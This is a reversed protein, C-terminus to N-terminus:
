RLTSLSELFHKYEGAPDHDEGDHLMAAFVIRLSEGKNVTVESKAGQKMAERGFPNAVFVGYDRNHWWSERFNKERSMLQIGGSKPGIGSYDCWKAPQGWTAKATQKGSSCRIVGGNKETFPTAVRAGLGMEEQDGFVLPGQDAHFTADWVLLWGSPRHMLTFANTLSGLVQGSGTKLRCENSFTLRGDAIQSESVFRVHEMAAKNRWFDHGNIDGFGLWIGPHMTDHDLPDEGKVPPHNRTVQLGDALRANAFYPRLIKDDRFVFDVIRKGDLSIRLRDNQQDVGFGSSSAESGSAAAPPNAGDAVLPTQLSMLFTTLDAVQQPTLHDSTDPMASVPSSRREEISGKPIDVREGNSQGLSLSLGSEELLVGSYVNGEDTIVNVQKFGETIVASPEVISEVIHRVNARLGISSLNPGFGNTTQDLSHCKACGAGQSHRFLLEGRDRNGRDLLALSAEVTAKTQQNELPLPSIAVMYNGKGGERGDDTNGGFEIPGADFAQRFFIFKAGEDIAATFPEKVFNERVWAPASAQRADIGVWVRVPALAEFQLWSAGRSNDDNNATQILDAGELESPVSSLRYPRDTYAPTGVTFGGPVIKYAAGGRAKLNRAFAVGGPQQEPPVPSIAVVYNGKGGSRGDDTNGGLEVPGADFTRHFFHFTAGEDIAATFPEKVFNERVWAPASAQRADIGVWVRVPALAEFHLWSEGRSNDDNNATQILDAAELEPPVRSLRYPRDTYAPTGSTFGGPVIKYAAGGRAQLNRALSAAGTPRSEGGSSAPGMPASAARLSRGKIRPKSGGAGKSLWLEAVQRVEADNEQQFLAQVESKTAAHTELLALLAARRIPARSDSLLGRLETTSQLARLAQWGAYFITTDPERHLQELFEPVLTRDLIKPDTEHLAQAAGFRVRPQSHRLALELAASLGETQGLQKARHAFIRPAQVQLNTSAQSESELTSLLFDTFSAPASMRGLTWVTWTEQNETLQGASLHRLLITALEDSTEGGGDGRRVLENQANIRRVPLPSDFDQILEDISFQQIPEDTKPKAAPPAGAWAVRFIRGENTLEGDKWEAGYGSSWGLIWLAGDPGVELDTPRFLSKGGQIFPEWTGGDPTMLAGDWKPTWKFTTKRLWDNIFFVHRYGPPFQPSECYIIGTGSGEFLPGSVPATPPHPDTGWHSSWPHNWGFHAGYFPMFVRDGGVQDNDTGLWNFGGDFTIDWPNRMGRAVIELNKGGDDCRLVGGNLGWDDEPDHYARRYNDKSFKVPTPFDPVDAPATVGWLDRFPKPAYRGPQNLGKSNGKSMYLKGDPAWNLGHLGHELNGLDTYVKIYEDAEDDGDLDRVITLDPANAIWLDRGHWALGQICNFGTAFVKVKDAVGDGNTDEVIVVSDGPTDPKPNRYQPGMGVFLRGREDFAMSCPQRVLPESAFLTVEFEPPVEPLAHLDSSKDEFQGWALSTLCPCMLLLCYGVSLPIPQM